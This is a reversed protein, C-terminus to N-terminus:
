GRSTTITIRFKKGFEKNFARILRRGAIVQARDLVSRKPMYRTGTEHFRSYPVDSGIRMVNKIIRVTPNRVYSARLRGTDWLIKRRPRAGQRRRRRYFRRYRAIRTSAKTQQWRETGAVAGENRFIDGFVRKMVKLAPGKYFESIDDLFKDIEEIEKQVVELNEVDFQFM